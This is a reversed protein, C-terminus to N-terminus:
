VMVKSSPKAAKQLSVWSTEIPDRAVTPSTIDIALAILKNSPLYVTALTIREDSNSASMLTSQRIIPPPAAPNVAAKAAEPVPALTNTASRSFRSEPDVASDDPSM